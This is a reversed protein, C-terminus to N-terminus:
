GGLLTNKGLSLGSQDVGSAGTLLTGAAGAVSQPRKRAGAQDPQSAQQPTPPPTVGSSKSGGLAGVLSSVGSAASAITGVIGLTAPDCM